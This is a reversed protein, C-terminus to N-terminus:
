HMEILLAADRLRRMAVRRAVSGTVARQLARSFIARACIMM